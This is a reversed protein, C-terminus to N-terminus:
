GLIAAAALAVVTGRRARRGAVLAVVVVAAGAIRGPTGAFLLLAVGVLIDLAVPAPSRREGRGPPAPLDAFLIALDSSTKAALAGDIRSGFEAEDLRGDAYSEALASAAALRARDTTRLRGDLPRNRRRVLNRYEGIIWRALYLIALVPLAITGCVAAVVLVVGLILAIGYALVFIITLM